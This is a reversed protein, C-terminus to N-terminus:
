ADLNYTCGLGGDKSIYNEYREDSRVPRHYGGRFGNGMRVKENWIDHARKWHKKEIRGGNRLEYMGHIHPHIPNGDEDTGKDELYWAYKVTPQSKQNMVKTVSKVLDDATLNDSPSCTLTFAWAGKPKGNGTKLGGCKRFHTFFSMEKEMPCLPIRTALMLNYGEECCYIFKSCRYEDGTLDRYNVDGEGDRILEVHKGSLCDIYHLYGEMPVVPFQILGVYTPEGTSEM